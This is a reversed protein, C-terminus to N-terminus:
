NISPRNDVPGVGYLKQHVLRSCHQVASYQLNSQMASCQYTVPSINVHSIHGERGKTQGYTRGNTRGNTRVETQIDRGGLFTKKKTNTSRDADSSLNATERIRSYAKSLRFHFAFIQNSFDGKFHEFSLGFHLYIKTKCLKIRLKCM